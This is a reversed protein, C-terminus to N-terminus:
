SNSKVIDIVRRCYAEKDDEYEQASILGKQYRKTDESLTEAIEILRNHWNKLDM